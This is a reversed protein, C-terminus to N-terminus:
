KSGKHAEKARIQESSFNTKKDQKVAKFERSRSTTAMNLPKDLKNVPKSYTFSKISQDQKAPKALEKVWGKNAKDRV